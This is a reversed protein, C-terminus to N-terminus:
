NGSTKSFNLGYGLSFRKIKFNDSLSINSSYSKKLEYNGFKYKGGLNFRLYDAFISATLSLYKNKKYYDDLEASIRFGESKKTEDNIPRMEIYSIPQISFTFKFNGKRTPYEKTLQNRIHNYYILTSKFLPEKIIKVSDHPNMILTKGYCSRKSGELDLLYGWVFFIETFM